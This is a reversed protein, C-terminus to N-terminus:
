YEIKRLPLAQSNSAIRDALAKLTESAHAAVPDEEGEKIARILYGIPQGVLRQTVDDLISAVFEARSRVPYYYGKGGKPRREVTLLGKEVMRSLTVAVTSPSQMERKEGRRAFHMTEYVDVSTQAEGADWLIRLIDGELIGVSPGESEEGAVGGVRRRKGRASEAETM